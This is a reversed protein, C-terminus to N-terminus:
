EIFGFNMGYKLWELLFMEEDAIRGVYNQMGDNRIQTKVIFVEGKYRTARDNLIVVVEDKAQPYRGAMVAYQSRLLEDNDLLPQFVNMQRATSSMMTEQIGSGSGMINMMDAMGTSEMVTSPNVQVPKDLDTRFLLLPTNYEYQIGTVLRDIGNAPDEIWAKFDTLNNETVGSMWSSMLKTMRSGSYVKGDEREKRDLDLDMLGAMTDTMDVTREDIQIPYSSLTDRQVREIYRNM